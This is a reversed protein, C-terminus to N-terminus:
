SQRLLLQGLAAHVQVRSSKEPIRETCGQVNVAGAGRARSPSRQGPLSGVARRGALSFLFKSLTKFHM